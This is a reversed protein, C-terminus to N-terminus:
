TGEGAKHLWELAQHLGEGKTACSALIHWKRSSLSKLRLKTTIEEISMGNPLDAKNALVLLPVYLLEPTELQRHMEQAAEDIVARDTSDVVWIMAFTNQYYARWLPRVKDRGGIDWVTWNIGDYAFSEINFGLTKQTVVTEGLKLRYLMTTKGSSDLGM